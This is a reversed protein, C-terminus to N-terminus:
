RWWWAAILAAVIAVVVIMWQRAKPSVGDETRKGFMGTDSLKDHESDRLHRPVARRDKDPDVPSNMGCSYPHGRGRALTIQEV